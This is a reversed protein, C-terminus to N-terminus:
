FMYYHDQQTLAQANDPNDASNPMLRKEECLRKDTWLGCEDVNMLTEIQNFLERM